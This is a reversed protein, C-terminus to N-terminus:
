GAAQTMEKRLWARAFYWDAEATKPAIDLVTAAEQCSMGGFFRLEVVRAKRADVKALSGLAEDLALIEADPEETSADVLSLTIRLADGGRKIRKRSRAHDVLIQRMASAALARFHTPDKCHEVIKPGLKLYAEHLLATPQLTHDRRERELYSAALRRLDEYVEAVLLHSDTKLPELGAKGARLNDDPNM